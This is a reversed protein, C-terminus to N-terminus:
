CATRTPDSRSRSSPTAASLRGARHTTRSSSSRDAESAPRSTSTPWFASGTRGRTRRTGAARPSRASRSGGVTPCAPRSCSTRSTSTSRTPMSPPRWSGSTRTMEGGAIRIGPVAARLAALGAPGHRDLPEELWLVDLAALREAIERATALRDAAHHRRGDALGPQPRGHDGALRRGGDRTAAVAALGDELRRPDIRIKLARFGEERLRLASEAREDAPLLMGCSAYAPIGDCPAASCRRSRSGPSRDPSTGCPSRSRGTAAPMSTSRRSPGSTVRSRWRIRASSCTSSPTSGTWRTARASGWSARTPRSGSSRPRSRRAAPGPGLGGPVAPRAPRALRDLRIATIRM